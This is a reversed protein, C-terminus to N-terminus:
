YEISKLRNKSAELLVREVDKAKNLTDVQMAMFNDSNISIKKASSTPVEQTNKTTQGKEGCGSFMLAVVCISLKSITKRSIM